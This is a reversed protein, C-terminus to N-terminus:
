QLEKLAAEVEAATPATGHFKPNNEMFSVGKGKITHAVIATPKGKTAAAQVLASKVASLDHGDIEITHWGFARWKDALPAVEMIDKVWGDLQIKNYDVIAVITDVKHYAGFMAAEWIQGEQIEGDGLLVYTRSPSGDLKAALAMGLGVSLGVGLSGTSAELSPIFRRDPHGQYISGLKRLSNLQDKPTYGAEAMACYLVPAAHGKSLIFRDRESWSPNKPDHRMVDFFLTTLIEVASLSGGPHGSKAEGIMQVIERRIRKGIAALDAVSQTQTM